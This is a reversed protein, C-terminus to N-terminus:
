SYSNITENIFSDWQDNFVEMALSKEEHSMGSYLISNIALQKLVRIDDNYSTFAMFAEYFDYSLGIAGWFSPDDSTIVVPYDISFLEAAPHNRLDKVLNLVQNSIPSIEIAIKNEQLLKMVAPHKTIAYGHGIRKAGLLLADFLNEDTMGKWNTEGAHFYFDINEKLIRDAFDILANGSDEQGVLDFGVMFDPNLAKLKKFLAIKENFVKQNINRSPAFIFKVSFHPHTSQFSKIINLYIEILQEENFVSGDKEYVEPLSGRFELHLIHDNVCEEFVQYLYEELVPRYTLLGHVTNFISNFRKWVQNIDFYVADPDEVILTFSSKIKANLEEINNENRRLDSLLEWNDCGKSKNPKEAAFKFSIEDTETICIFLDDIYTLNYLFDTSVMAKEHVHLIAGKPMKKIIQFVTSNEILPKAKLFNMSPLFDVPKILGVNFEAHKADMLLTNVIIEKDNLQLQYGLHMNQEVAQLKNRATWYYENSGFYKTEVISNYFYLIQVLTLILQSTM